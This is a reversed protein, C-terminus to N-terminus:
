EAELEIARNISEIAEYMEQIMDKACRQGPCLLKKIGHATAPNVVDFAKLVDYVDILAGKCQRDYNPHSKKPEVKESEKVNAPIVYPGASYESCRIGDEMVIVLDPTKHRCKDNECYGGNHCSKDEKTEMIESRLEGQIKRM